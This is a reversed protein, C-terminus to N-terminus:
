VREVRVAEGESWLLARAGEGFLAFRTCALALHATRRRITTRDGPFHFRRSFIEGCAERPTSRLAVAVYVTGVPKVESGGSPGAVGTTAIAIDTNFRALAGRAM